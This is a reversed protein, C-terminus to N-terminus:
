VYTEHGFHFGAQNVVTACRSIFIKAPDTPEYKCVLCIAFEKGKSEPYEEFIEGSEIFTLYANIKNQLLYLHEDNWALHDSIKLVAVGEDSVGIADITNQDEVSM